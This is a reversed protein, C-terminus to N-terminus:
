LLLQRDLFIEIESYMGGLPQSMPLSFPCVTTPFAGSFTPNPDGDRFRSAPRHLRGAHVAETKCMKAPLANPPDYLSIHKFFFFCCTHLDPM